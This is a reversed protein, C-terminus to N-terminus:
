FNEVFPTLWAEINDLEEPTQLCTKQKETKTKKATRQPWDWTPPVGFIM